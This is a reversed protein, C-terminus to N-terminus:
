EAPAAGFSISYGGVRRESFRGVHTAGTEGVPRQRLADCLLGGWQNGMAFRMLFAVLPRSRDFPSHGSHRAMRTDNRLRGQGDLDPRHPCSASFSVVGHGTHLERELVLASPRGSNSNGGPYDPVHSVPQFFAYMAAMPSFRAMGSTFRHSGPLAGLLNAGSPDPSTGAGSRRRHASVSGLPLLWCINVWRKGLRIHPILGWQPPLWDSLRIRDDAHTLKTEFHAGREDLLKM